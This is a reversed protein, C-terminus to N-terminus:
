NPPSSGIGRVTDSAFVVYEPVSPAGPHLERNDMALPMQAHLLCPACLFPLAALMTFIKSM